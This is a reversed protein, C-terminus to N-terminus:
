LIPKRPSGTALRNHEGKSKPNRALSSLTEHSVRGKLCFSSRSGQGDKNCLAMLNLCHEMTKSVEQSYNMVMKDARRHKKLSNKSVNCWCKLINKVPSKVGNSSISIRM